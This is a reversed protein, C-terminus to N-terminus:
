SGSSSSGTFVTYEGVQTVTWTQNTEVSPLTDAPDPQDDQQDTAERHEEDDEWDVPSAYNLGCELTRKMVDSHGIVADPWSCYQQTYHDITQRWETGTATYFVVTRYLVDGGMPGIGEPLGLFVTRVIWEQWRNERVIVPDKNYVCYEDFSPCPVAVSVLSCMAPGISGDEWHLTTIAELDIQVYLNLAEEDM